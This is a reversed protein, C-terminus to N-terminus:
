LAGGQEPPQVGHVARVLAEISEIFGLGPDDLSFSELEIIAGPVSCARLSGLGAHRCLPDAMDSRTVVIDPDLSLVQEASYEPFDKFTDAAADRLGAYRLIDHYGTGLTGGFLKDGYPSLYLGRPRRAPPVDRAARIAIDRLRRTLVRAREPHGCLAGIRQVTPLLTGLGRMQGMDFVALGHERLRAVRKADGFSDLLLLDTKMALLAEINSLSAIARKGTFRHRWPAQELSRSTVAIVRDPECLEMVLWDSVTSASSIRAYPELPIPVDTADLLALRGDVEVIAVEALGDGSVSRPQVQEKRGGVLASALAVGVAIVAALANFRGANSERSM